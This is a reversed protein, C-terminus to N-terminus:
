PELLSLAKDVVELPDQGLVRIVPEKGHGGQDFILDPMRGASLIAEEVGWVLSSGERERVERPEESRSFSGVSLGLARGKALFGEEYRVAMASRVSPDFKSATLIIRAVHSSAGFEPCSLRAVGEGLRVIRGPFAAVEEVSGAGRLAYGLNSQIEPILRGAGRASSLRRWAAELAQLVRFKESDREQWALSNVVGAGSGPRFSAALATDIFKVASEVADRLGCGKALFAATAASFACGTGHVDGGLSIRRHVFRFMGEEDLLLDVVEGGRGHGGKVLVACGSRERILRAAEAMDEEGCIDVGSLLAAEPLNPTVLVALPLLRSVLADLGEPSLLEAGSTSRLVPDVVLNEVRHGALVEAVADVVGATCLMGTKVARPRVRPLLAEVQRAVLKPAVPEVAEVELGDQVTLGAVAACGWVGIAQFVKLDQQIGAGGSPDSGAVSLAVPVRNGKQSGDNITM